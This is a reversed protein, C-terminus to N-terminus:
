NAEQHDEVYKRLKDLNGTFTSWDYIEADDALSYKEMINVLYEVLTVANLEKKDFEVVKYVKM